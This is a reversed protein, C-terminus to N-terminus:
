AYRVRAEDHQRVSIREIRTERELLRVVNVLLRSERSEAARVDQSQESFYGRARELGHAVLLVVHVAARSRLGNSAEDVLFHDLTGGVGDSAATPLLINEGFDVFHNVFEVVDQLAHLLM